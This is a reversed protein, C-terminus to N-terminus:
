PSSSRILLTRTETSDLIKEEGRQGSWSQPGGLRRDLPYLPSKGWPYLPWPTFSVVSRWSTGLDLFHPYIRGRGWVGENCLAQNTLCLFFKVVISCTFNYQSICYEYMKCVLCVSLNIALLAYICVHDSMKSVAFTHDM